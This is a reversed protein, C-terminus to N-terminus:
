HPKLSTEKNRTNRASSSTSSSGSLYAQFLQQIYYNNLLNFWFMKLVLKTWRVQLCDVVYLAGYLPYHKGAITLALAMLCLWPQPCNRFNERSERMQILTLYKDNWVHEEVNNNQQAQKWTKVRINEITTRRLSFVEKSLAIWMFCSAFRTIVWLFWSYCVQFVLLGSQMWTIDFMFCVLCSEYCDPLGPLDFIHLVDRGGGRARGLCRLGPQSCKWM